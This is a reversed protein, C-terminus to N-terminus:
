RPADVDAGADLLAEVSRTHGEASAHMLTTIGKEDKADVEAGATLFAKINETEGKKGAEILQANFTQGFAPVSVLIMLFAFSITRKNM